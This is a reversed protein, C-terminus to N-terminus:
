NLLDRMKKIKKEKVDQIQKKKSRSKTSTRQREIKKEELSQIHIYVLSSACPLAAQDLNTSLM